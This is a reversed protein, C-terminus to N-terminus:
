GVINEEVSHHFEENWQMDSDEEMMMTMVMVVMMVMVMM